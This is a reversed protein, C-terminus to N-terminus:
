RKRKAAKAAGTRPRRSTKTRPRRQQPASAEGRGAVSPDPVIMITEGQVSSMNLAKLAVATDPCSLVYIGNLTYARAM